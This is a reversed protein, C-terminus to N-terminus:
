LLALSRQVSRGAEAALPPTHLLFPPPFLELKGQKPAPEQAFGGVLGWCLIPISIKAGWQLGVAGLALSTVFWFIFLLFIFVLWGFLCAFVSGPHKLSDLALSSANQTNVTSSAAAEVSAKVVRGGRLQKDVGEWPLCISKEQSPPGSGAASSPPAPSPPQLCSFVKGRPAAAGSLMLCVLDRILLWVGPGLSARSRSALEDVQLYVVDSVM